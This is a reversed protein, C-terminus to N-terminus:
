NTDILGSAGICWDDDAVLRGSLRKFTLVVEFPRIFTAPDAITVRSQLVNPATLRLREVVHLADGHPLGTSDLLTAANFNTSDIVLTDGEWKAVSQGLYSPGLPEFHDRGIYAWRSIHNWEFLFALMQANQVLKFPRSLTMIRPVGPPLCRSMSDISDKGAKLAAQNQAYQQRAQTTLLSAGTDPLLAKKEAGIQWLGNFDPTLVAEAAAGTQAGTILVLFVLAWTM